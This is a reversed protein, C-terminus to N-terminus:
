LSHFHTLPKKYVFYTLLISRVFISLLWTLGLQSHTQKQPSFHLMLRSAAWNNTGIRFFGIQSDTQFPSSVHIAAKSHRYIIILWWNKQSWSLIDTRTIRSNQCRDKRSWMCPVSIILKTGWLVHLDFRNIPQCSKFSWSVVRNIMTHM